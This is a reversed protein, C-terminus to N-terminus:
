DGFSGDIWAGGLMGVLDRVPGAVRIVCRPLRCCFYQYSKACCAPLLAFHFEQVLITSRSSVAISIPLLEDVARYASVMAFSAFRFNPRGFAVQANIMRHLPRIM